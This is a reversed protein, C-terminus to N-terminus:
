YNFPDQKARKSQSPLIVTSPLMKGDSIMATMCTIRDKTDANRKLRVVMAEEPHRVVKGLPQDFWVPTEDMNVINGPLYVHGDM